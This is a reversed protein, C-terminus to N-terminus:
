QLFVAQLVFYPDYPHADRIPQDRMAIGFEQEGLIPEICIPNISAHFLTNVHQVVTSCFCFFHSSLCKAVSFSARRYQQVSPRTTKTCSITLRDGKRKRPMKSWYTKQLSKAPDVVLKM